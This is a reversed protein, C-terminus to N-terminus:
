PKADFISSLMKDMDEESGGFSDGFFDLGRAAPRDAKADINGFLGRKFRHNLPGDGLEALQVDEEVVGDVGCRALALAVDIEQFEILVDEVFDDLHVHQAAHQRAFM